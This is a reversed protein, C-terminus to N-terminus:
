CHKKPGVRTWIGFPMEIPEAVKTCNVASLRYVKCRAARGGRLIAGEWSPDPGGHLVHNRPRVRTRLGFLVEIPEATKAPSVHKEGVLNSTSIVMRQRTIANKSSIRLTVKFKHDQDTFMRHCTVYDVGGGLKFIRCSDTRSNHTRVDGVPYWQCHMRLRQAHATDRSRHM